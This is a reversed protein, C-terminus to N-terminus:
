ESTGGYVCGTLVAHKIHGYRANIFTCPISLIFGGGKHPRLFVYKLSQANHNDLINVLLISDVLFVGYWEPIKRTVVYFDIKISKLPIIPPILCFWRSLARAQQMFQTSSCYYVNTFHFMPFLLHHQIQWFFGFSDVFYSCTQCVFTHRLLSECM